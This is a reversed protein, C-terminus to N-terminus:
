PTCSCRSADAEPRRFCAWVAKGKGKGKGTLARVGWDDCLEQVIRM